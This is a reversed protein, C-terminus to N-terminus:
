FRATPIGIGSHDQRWLHCCALMAGAMWTVDGGGYIAAYRFIQALFPLSIFTIAEMFPMSSATIVAAHVDAGGGLLAADLFPLADANIAEMSLLTDDSGGFVAYCGCLDGGYIASDGFQYRADILPLM